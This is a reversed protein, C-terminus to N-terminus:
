KKELTLAVQTVKGDEITVFRGAARHQEPLAQLEYVGGDASHLDRVTL